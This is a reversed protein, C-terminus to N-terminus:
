PWDWIAPMGAASRHDSVMSKHFSSAISESMAWAFPGSGNNFTRFTIRDVYNFFNENNRTARAGLLQIGVSAGLQWRLNVQRYPATTSPNPPSVWYQDPNINWEPGGFDGPPYGHSAVMDSTVTVYQMDEVFRANPNPIGLYAKMASDNLLHAAVTMHLGKGSHGGGGNNFNGGVELKEFEDIGRQSMLRMLQTKANLDIDLSLACIANATDISFDSGYGNHNSTPTQQWGADNSTIWSQLLWRQRAIIGNLSPMSTPVPLKRLTDPDPLMDATWKSVKSLAALGPRFANAPPSVACVTLASGYVLRNRGQNPEPSLNSVAKLISGETGAPFLLPVGTNGPDKNRPDDYWVNPPTPTVLSDTGQEGDNEIGANVVAGHVKRGSVNQSSPTISTIKVGPGVALNEVFGDGTCYRGQNAM